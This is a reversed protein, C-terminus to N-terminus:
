PSAPVVRDRISRGGPLPRLPPRMRFAPVRRLRRRPLRRIRSARAADTEGGSGSAAASGATAFAPRGSRAHAPQVAQRSTGSARPRQTVPAHRGPPASVPAPATRASPGGPAPRPLSPAASSRRIGAGAPTSGPAPRVAAVNDRHHLAPFRSGRDPLIQGPRPGAPIPRAAAAGARVLRPASPADSGPASRLPPLAPPRVPASPAAAPATRRRAASPASRVALPPRLGFRPAPKEEEPAPSAARGTPNGADIRRQRRAAAAVSATRREPVAEAPRATPAEARRPRRSRNPPRLVASTATPPETSIRTARGRGRRLGNAQSADAATGSRRRFYRQLKVAVDEDISSSHTKKRHDGLEPLKDLIVHAKVELDGAGARQDTSIKKM